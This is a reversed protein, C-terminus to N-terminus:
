RRKSKAKMRERRRKKRVLKKTGRLNEVYRRKKRRAWGGTRDRLEGPPQAKL